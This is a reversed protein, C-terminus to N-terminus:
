FPTLKLIIAELKDQPKPSAAHIYSNFRCACLKKSQYLAIYEKKM